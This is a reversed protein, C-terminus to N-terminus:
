FLCTEIIEKGRLAELWEGPIGELGYIIGALGGAVAGVTDTDSGLNVAKLVADKYNDTTAVAWLAAELTSVVYGSSKIEAEDLAAIGKVRDFPCDLSELIDALRKGSLLERAIEVYCVCAAKSIDHVHTIASVAEIEEKSADTFVLPIIRMLSGNGNSREDSRGVGSRLAAATTGGIDFVNHDIAYEGAHAWLRFRNLMDATDICGCVKISHCTALTMSTDDSWTGLPQYHSGYGVMDSVKFSGRAKFEVPVGLADGIALGYIASKLLNNIPEKGKQTFNASKVM